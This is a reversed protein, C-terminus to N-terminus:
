NKSRFHLLLGNESLTGASFFFSLDKYYFEFSSLKGSNAGFYM